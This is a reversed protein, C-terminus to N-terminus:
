KWVGDLIIQVNVVTVPDVYPNEEDINCRLWQKLQRVATNMELSMTYSVLTRRYVALVVAYDDM